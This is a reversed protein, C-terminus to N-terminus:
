NPAGDGTLNIHGLKDVYGICQSGVAYETVNESPFKDLTGYSERPTGDALIFSGDKLKAIVASGGAKIQEVNTFANAKGLGYSQEGRLMVSGDSFLLVVTQDCAEVAVVNNFGTLLLVGCKDSGCAVLTGDSRLGVTFYRGAAIEVIDQWGETGCQGHSNDGVATVTGDANLIVTHALGVAIQVGNVGSPVTSTTNHKNNSIHKVSGDACLVATRNEYTAVSVANKVDTGAIKGDRIIYAEESLAFTDAHYARKQADTLLPYAYDLSNAIGPNHPTIKISAPDVDFGDYMEGFCYALVVAGACDGNEESRNVIERAINADGGDTYYSLFELARDYKGIGKLRSTEAYYCVGRVILERRLRIYETESRLVSAAALAAPYNGDECMKDIYDKVTEDFETDNELKRLVAFADSSLADEGSTSFEYEVRKFVQDVRGTMSAYVYATKFDRESLCKSIINGAVTRSLAPGSCEGAIKYAEGYRGDEVLENVVSKVNFYQSLYIGGFVAGGTLLVCLGIILASKVAKPLTKKGTSFDIGDLMFEVADARDFLATEERGDAYEIKSIYATCGVANYGDPVRMRISINEKTNLGERDYVLSFFRSNKVAGGVTGAFRYTVTFSTLKEDLDRRVIFRVNEGGDALSVSQLSVAETKENEQVCNEAQEEPLSAVTNNESDM